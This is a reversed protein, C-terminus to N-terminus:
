SEENYEQKKGNFKEDPKEINFVVKKNRSMNKAQEPSRQELSEENDNMDDM